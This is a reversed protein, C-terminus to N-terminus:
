KVESIFHSRKPSKRKPTRTPIVKDERLESVFGELTRHGPCPPPPKKSEPDLASNPNCSENWNNAIYRAIRGNSFNPNAKKALDQAHPVWPRNEKRVAGSNIGGRSQRGKLIKRLERGVDTALEGRAGIFIAATALEFAIGSLRPDERRLADITAKCFNHDVIAEIRDFESLNGRALYGAHCADLMGCLVEGNRTAREVTQAGELGLKQTFIALIRDREEPSAAAEYKEMWAWLESNDHLEKLDVM